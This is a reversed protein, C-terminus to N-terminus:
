CRSFSCSSCKQCGEQIILEGGCRDCMAKKIDEHEPLFQKRLISGLVDPTSKFSRGKYFLTSGNLTKEFQSIVSEVPVKYKFCTSTLRAVLDIFSLMDPSVNSINMFVEVPKGNDSNVIFYMKGFQTQLRYTKGDVTDDREITSAVATDQKKTNGVEVVQLKRSGDRYVTLGKCELQYALMYANEVDQETASNPMNITKSVASDCYKQFCAQMKVHQEPTLKYSTTLVSVIEDPLKIDALTKGSEMLKVAETYGRNILYEKVIDSVFFIQRDMVNKTFCIDYLPEIGFSCDAISAITGTPAYSIQCANRPTGSLKLNPNANQYFISSGSDGKEIALEVSANHAYIAIEEALSEAFKYSEDSGYPIDMKILADAFGMIGLGIKRNRKTTEDIESIPAKQLTVINDLFRVAIEVTEKLKIHDFNLAHVYGGDDDIVTSGLALKGVDISGLVCAEYPLLPQEGCPNTAFITGLNKLNHRDNITDLFVVGPEGNQWASNIIEKWVVQAEITKFVSGDKPNILDYKLGLLVAKMFKDTIGVSINFNNIKGETNKCKIFELIDPHDVRMVGMQAIRRRGGQKVAEAVENLVGLVLPIPGTSKGGSTLIRDGRPRLKSLPYGLGGGEKGILAAVKWADTISHGFNENGMTDEIDIVFCASFTNCGTGANMLTPSNPIFLRPLLISKFKEAWESQNKEASAIFTSV